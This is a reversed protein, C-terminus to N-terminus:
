SPHEFPEHTGERQFFLWNYYPRIIVQNQAACGLIELTIVENAIWVGRLPNSKRRGKSDETLYWHSEDTIRVILKILFVLVDMHMM